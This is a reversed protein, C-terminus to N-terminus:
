RGADRLRQLDSPTLKLPPGILDRGSLASQAVGDDSHTASKTLIHVLEHALVRGLARGMLYDPRGHDTVDMASQVSANVHNCDVESFPLVDGNSDYTFAYPGREDYLMPVPDLVCKGKFRVVVLDQYTQRDAGSLPRFDLHLGTTKFIDQTERKMQEIARGSYPGDFDLVVTVDAAWAAAACACAALVRIFWRPM